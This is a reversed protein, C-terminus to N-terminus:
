GHAFRKQIWTVIPKWALDPCRRSTVIGIHGLNPRILACDTLANALSLASQPPVIRDQRPIVALSPLEIQNPQVTVSGVTWCGRAPDNRRYWVELCELAVNGALAPGDNLWDELLTFADITRHGAADSQRLQRALRRYKHAAELPCLTAFLMQIMDVPVEGLGAVFQKLPQNLLAATARLQEGGPSHFDWPAAMLILGSIDAQRTQALPTVLTGGMCYGLLIPKSRTIDRVVNFARTLRGAIYDTLTFCHEEAGPEGWDLLLPRTGSQALMRLFSHSEKLDLVDAHNILSPVVLVCPLCPDEGNQGYDLLRSGGEKWITPPETVSRGHRHRRYALIGTIFEGIRRLIEQNVAHRLRDPDVNELATKLDAARNALTPNWGPWGDKLIQLGIGSSLWTMAAAGLHLPLPRPGLRPRTQKSRHEM